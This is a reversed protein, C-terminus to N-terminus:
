NSRRIGWSRNVDARAANSFQCFATVCRSQDREMIGEKLERLPNKVAEPALFSAAEIASLIPLQDANRLFELYGAVVSAYANLLFESKVQKRTFFQTIACGAFVGILGIIAPLYTAVKM